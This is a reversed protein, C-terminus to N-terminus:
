RGKLYEAVRGRSIWGGVLPAILLICLSAVSYGATLGVVHAPQEWVHTAVATAAIGLIYPVLALLGAELARMSLLLRNGFGCAVYLAFEARRMWWLGIMTLVMTLPAIIAAIWPIYGVIADLNSDPEPKFLRGVLPPTGSEFWGNLLLEVEPTSAAESAVYCEPAAGKPPAIISISTDWEPLRATGLAAVHSDGGATSVRATDNIGLLRAADSGVAGVAGEPQVSNFMVEIMGPTVYQEYVHIGAHSRVPERSITMIAGAAQIGPIGQLADCRKTELRSSSDAASVVFVSAGREQDENWRQFEADVSTITAAAAMSGLLSSLAILMVSRRGASLVNEWAESFAVDMSGRSPSPRPLGRKVM